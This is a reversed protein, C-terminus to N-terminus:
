YSDCGQGDGDADLRHKDYGLVQVSYGIDPCDLDYSVNPVCGSYNSDCNSVPKVYTGVSTIQTIPTKTITETSKRETEVGDVMTITYTIIKVGDVGPTKIQTTDKPLSNDDVNQKNFPISETKSETKISTVPDTKIKSNKPKEESTTPSSPSIASVTVLSGLVIAIITSAKGARNLSEFWLKVKHM